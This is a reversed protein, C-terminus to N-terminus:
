KKQRDLNIKAERLYINFKLQQVKRSCFIKKNKLKGDLSIEKKKKKVCLQKPTEVHERLEKFM